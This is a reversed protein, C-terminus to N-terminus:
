KISFSLTQIYVDGDYDETSDILEISNINHQETNIKYKGDLAQFVADAIEQSEDYSSSVCSIFVICNHYAIGVKTRDISYEDRVYVIYSGETGEPAIIPYIRSDVLEKIKEDALLRERILTCVSFKTQLKSPYFSINDM